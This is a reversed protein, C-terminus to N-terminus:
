FVIRNRAPEPLAKSSQRWLGESSPAASLSMRCPYPGLGMVAIDNILHNILDYCIGAIRNFQFALKQKSGPEESKLVLVPEKYGRFSGDYLTAFAGLKNLVHRDTTDLSRAMDERKTADAADVDVGAKKYSLSGNMTGMTGKSM